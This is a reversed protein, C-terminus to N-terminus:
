GEEGEGGEDVEGVGASEGGWEEDYELCRGCYPNTGLEYECELCRGEGIEYEGEDPISLLAFNDPTRPELLPNKEPSSGSRPSVGGERMKKPRCGGTRINYPWRDYRGREADPDSEGGATAGNGPGEGIDDPSDGALLRRAQHPSMNLQNLTEILMVTPRREETVDEHEVAIPSDYGMLKDLRERARVRTADSVAVQEAQELLIRAREVADPDGSQLVSEAESRLRAAEAGEAIARYWAASDELTYGHRASLQARQDRILARYRRYAPLRKIHTPTTSRAYGALDRARRDTEGADKLLAFRAVRPVRAALGNEVVAEVAKEVEKRDEAKGAM